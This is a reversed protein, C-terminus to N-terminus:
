LSFKTAGYITYLIFYHFRCIAYNFNDSANTGKPGLWGAIPLVWPQCRKSAWDNDSVNSLQNLTSVGFIIINFFLGFFVFYFIAGSFSWLENSKSPNENAVAASAAAAVAATAMPMLAVSAVPGQEVPANLVSAPRIEGTTRDEDRLGGHLSM